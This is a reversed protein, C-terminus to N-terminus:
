PRRIGAGGNDLFLRTKAALDAPHLPVDRNTM